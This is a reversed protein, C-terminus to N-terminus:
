KITQTLINGAFDMLTINLYDHKTAETFQTYSIEIEQNNGSLSFNGDYCIDYNEYGEFKRVEEFEDAKIFIYNYSGKLCFDVEKFNESEIILMITGNDKIKITPIDAKELVLDIRTNSSINVEIENEYFNQDKLNINKIKIIGGNIKIMEYSSSTNIVQGDIEIGTKILRRNYEASISVNFQEAKEKPEYYKNALLLGMGLLLIIIVLWYVGKM